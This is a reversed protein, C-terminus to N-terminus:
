GHAKEDNASRQFLSSASTAATYMTDNVGEMMMHLWGSSSGLSLHVVADQGGAWIPRDAERSSYTGKSSSVHKMLQLVRAMWELLHIPDVKQGDFMGETRNQKTSVIKARRLALSKNALMTAPSGVKFVGPCTMGFLECQRLQTM